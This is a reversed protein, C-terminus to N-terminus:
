CWVFMANHHFHLLSVKPQLLSIAKACGMVAACGGMDFKMLEIMASPGSKLNYGGSDFTLGKGILTVRRPAESSDDCHKYHLHIFQPPYSSGQQVGLYGEMGLKKCEEYGLVNCSMHPSTGLSKALASIAVPHKSNPPSNVLDKAFNVGWSIAESRKNLNAVDMEPTISSFAISSLATQLTSSPDQKKYRSDQYVADYAGVLIQSCEQESFPNASVIGISSANCEKAAAAIQSGLKFSREDSSLNSPIGVFSIGKFSGFSGFLKLTIQKSAEIKFDSHSTISGIRDKLSDPLISSFASISETINLSNDKNSQIDIPFVLVESSELNDTKLVRAQISNFTNSEFPQTVQFNTFRRSLPRMSRFSARVAFTSVVSFQFMLLNVLFVAFNHLM